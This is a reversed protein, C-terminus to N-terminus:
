KSHGMAVHPTRSINPEENTMNLLNAHTLTHRHKKWTCSLRDAQFTYKRSCYTKGNNQSVTRGECPVSRPSATCRLISPSSTRHAHSMYVILARGAEFHLTICHLLQTVSKIIELYILCLTIYLALYGSM